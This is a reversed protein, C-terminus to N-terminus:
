ADVAPRTGQVPRVLWAKPRGAVMCALLLLPEPGPRRSPLVSAPEFPMGRMKVDLVHAGLGALLSRMRREQLPAPGVVEYCKVWPDSVPAKAALYGNSQGLPRAAHRDCLTGLSHARIAAPDAELVYAGPDEVAEWTSGAPLRHGDEVRVAWRGPEARRGLWLCAERCEGGYSVFEISGSLSGLYEDTLMPSLKICGLDLGAMRATLAAPGPMFRDPERLRRGGVRRGPDAIACTFDWPASLCDAQRVEADLGHVALNHRACELRDPDTDFGIAPGRRALALLDGGVGCTLDAVLVGDAFRSARWAAVAEHTAQELGEQVFLMELARSFKARARRRLDWQLAAWRALEPGVEGALRELNSASPLLDRALDLARLREPGM